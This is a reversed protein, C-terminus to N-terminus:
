LPTCKVSGGRRFLFFSVIYETSIHGYTSETTANNNINGRHGASVSSIEIRHGDGYTEVLM